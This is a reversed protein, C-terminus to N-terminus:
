TQRAFYRFVSGRQLRAPLVEDPPAGATQQLRPKWQEPLLFAQLTGTEVTHSRPLTSEFGASNAFM